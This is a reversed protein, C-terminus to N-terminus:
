GRADHAEKWKVLDIVATPLDSGMAAKVMPDTKDFWQVMKAVDRQIKVLKTAAVTIGSIAVSAGVTTLITAWWPM